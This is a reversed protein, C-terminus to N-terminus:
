LKLLTKAIKKNSNLWLLFENQILNELHKQLKPMIIRKTQGEFSPENIFISIIIDSYDSLDNIGINSIKGIQNKVM